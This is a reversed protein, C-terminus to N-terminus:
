SSEKRWWRGGIPVDRGDDLDLRDFHRKIDQRHGNGSEELQAQFWEWTKAGNAPSVSCLRDNFDVIAETSRPTMQGSIWIWVEADTSRSVVADVFEDEPIGLFELLKGSLEGRSIYDGLKGALEGRVKDIARPLLVIGGLTEYPSRPASNTLDMDIGMRNSLCCLLVTAVRVATNVHM